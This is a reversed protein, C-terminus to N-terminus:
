ISECNLFACAEKYLGGYIGSLLLRSTVISYEPDKEVLSRSAMITAKDVESVPMGPYLNNKTEQFIRSADTAPLDRCYTQISSKLYAMDLRVKTNDNLIVQIGRAKQREEQYKEYNKEVDHFGSKKLSNKVETQIQEITISEQEIFKEQLTKTVTSTINQIHHYLQLDKMPANIARTAAFAESVAVTIRKADYSVLTGDRKTVQFTVTNSNQLSSM